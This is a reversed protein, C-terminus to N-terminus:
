IREALYNESISGCQQRFEEIASNFEKPSTKANGEPEVLLPVIMRNMEAVNARVDKPFLHMKSVTTVNLTAAQENARSRLGELLEPLSSRDTIENKDAKPYIDMGQIGTGSLMSTALRIEANTNSFRVLRDIIETCAEM